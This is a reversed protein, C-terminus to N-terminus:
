RKLNTAPAPKEPPNTVPTAYTEPRGSGRADANPVGAQADYDGEVNAFGSPDTGMKLAIERPSPM